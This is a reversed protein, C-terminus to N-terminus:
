YVGEGNVLIANINVLGSATLKEIFGVLDNVDAQAFGDPVTLTLDIFASRVVNPVSANTNDVQPIAVRLRTVRRNGGTRRSSITLRPSVSEFTSSESLQGIGSEIVKPLFITNGGSRRAVTTSVFTAM